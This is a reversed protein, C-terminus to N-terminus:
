SLSGTVFRSIPHISSTTEQALPLFYINIMAACFVNRKATQKETLLKLLVLPKVLLGGGRCSSLLTLSGLTQCSRSQSSDEVVKQLNCEAVTM